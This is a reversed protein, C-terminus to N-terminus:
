QERQPQCRCRCRQPQHQTTPQNTATATAAATVTATLTAMVPPLGNTTINSAHQQRQQQYQQQQHRQREFLNHATMVTATHQTGSAPVHSCMCIIPPPSHTAIADNHVVLTACTTVSHRGDASVYCYCCVCCCCGRRCCWCCCCCRYSCRLM